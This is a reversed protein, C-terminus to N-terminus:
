IVEVDSLKVWGENGDQLRINTWDGLQEIIQVKLGEHIVFLSTGENDPAGKVTVSPVLVIAYERREIKENQSHAFFMTSIMFFLAVVGITFWFKRMTTSSSTFFFGAAFLLILFISVSIYAWGDASFMSILGNFWRSIFFDPLINLKDVIRNEALKLNNQVDTNSPALLLAREYNLIARAHENQKYYCNGLNYYLQWSVEKTDAIKQYLSTAEQYKGERYANEAQLALEENTEAYLSLAFVFLTCLILIKKM